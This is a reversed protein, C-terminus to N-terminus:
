EGEAARGGLGQAKEAKPASGAASQDSGAPQATGSSDAAPEDTANGVISLTENRPLNDNDYKKPAVAPKDREKDKRVTRAYDGLPENQAAAPFALVGMLFIAAMGVYVIRKM